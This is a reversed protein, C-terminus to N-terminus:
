KPSMLLCFLLEQLQEERLCLDSLWAHKLNQLTVAM